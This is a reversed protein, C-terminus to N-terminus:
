PKGGAAAFAAKWQADLRDGLRRLTWGIVSCAERSTDAESTGLGVLVDGWRAVDAVDHEMAAIAPTVPHRETM